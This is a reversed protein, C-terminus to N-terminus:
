GFCRMWDPIVEFSPTSHVMVIKARSLLGIPQVVWKSITKLILTLLALLAFSCDYCIKMQNGGM